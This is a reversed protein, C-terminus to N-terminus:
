FFYISMPRPQTLAFSLTGRVLAESKFSPTVMSLYWCQTCIHLLLDFIYLSQPNLIESHRRKRTFAERSLHCLLSPLAQCHVGWHVVVAISETVDSFGFLILLVVRERHLYELLDIRQLYNTTAVCRVVKSLPVVYLSCVLVCVCLSVVFM